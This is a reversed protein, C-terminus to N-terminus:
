SLKEAGEKWVVFAEGGGFRSEVRAVYNKVFIKVFADYRVSKAVNGRPEFGDAHSVFVFIKSPFEERLRKYERYTMETYQLSDIFVVKPSQRRRLRATLDAMSERNLLVLRQSCDAMGIEQYARQMSLSMGEEISNYIVKGFRCMYKALQLAFRTKGSFSSGWILWTGMAEPRGFSALWEGDFDLTEPAYAIVDRVSLARKLSTSM